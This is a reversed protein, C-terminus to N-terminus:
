TNVILKKKAHILQKQFLFTSMRKLLGSLRWWPKHQTQNFNVLQRPSYSLIIVKHLSLCVFKLFLRDSFRVHSSILDCSLNVFPRLFHWKHSIFRGWIYVQHNIIWIRWFKLQKEDWKRHNLYIVKNSYYM